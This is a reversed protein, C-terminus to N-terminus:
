YSALRSEITAVTKVRGGQLTLRSHKRGLWLAGYRPM